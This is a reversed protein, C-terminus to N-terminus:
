ENMAYTIASIVAGHSDQVVFFRGINPIDALPVLIKAGLNEAKRAVADVNEVTVYGGWNSSTGEAL